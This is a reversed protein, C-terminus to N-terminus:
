RFSAASGVAANAGTWDCTVALSGGATTGDANSYDAEGHQTDERETLNTWTTADLIGTNACLGVAFGGATTAPITLVLAGSAADPDSVVGVQTISQLNSLMWVCIVASTVPETFTVSVNVTTGALEVTSRYIASDISATGNEDTIEIAAYGNITMSSVGFVSAGDEGIVGVIIEGTQTASAAGTGAAQFGASNYTTSNATDSV